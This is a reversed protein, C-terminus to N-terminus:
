GVLTPGSRVVPDVFNNGEFDVYDLVDYQIKEEGESVMEVLSLVKWPKPCIRPEERRM